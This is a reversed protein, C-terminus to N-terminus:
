ARRRTGTRPTRSRAASRRGAARGSPSPSKAALSRKLLTALDIIEASRHAPKERPGKTLTHAQGKKAKEEVRKLLDDRYSDKYQKPDWADSLDAVLKLALELEKATVGVKRLSGAPADIADVSLIEDAYRLTNLVLIHGQPILACPYARTRVVVSGIAWRESERLAERLLAYVKQGRKDPAVYYPTEFYQPPIEQPRVFSRIAITQTAKVNARRFDEDTLAVYEGKKHEYGKVIDAWEVAKGTSKNIRQYGVPSFDRRDLLDLDLENARTATQLSVPIHVLSFSIAGKWIIRAM